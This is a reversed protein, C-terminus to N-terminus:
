QQQPSLQKIFKYVQSWYNPQIITDNHTGNEFEAIQKNESKSLGYLTNIHDPPILEDKKGSLFLIPVSSPLSPILSESPWIETCLASFPTLLPLASPILKPISLFTNELILADVLEGAGPLSALYIGIAGGLSRGYLIVTSSSIQNHSNLYNLVAHCDLKIGQESATGTSKGYGRYSFVFVNYGMKKYFQEAIPLSHGMNGANPCLMVVTKNTYSPDASSQLMVYAKLKEDDSTKITVEEYPIGYKDPTDIIDRSGEPFNSPYILSRQFRYIGFVALSALLPIATAIIATYKSFNGGMSVSPQLPFCLSLSLSLPNCVCM